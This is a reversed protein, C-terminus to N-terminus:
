PSYPMATAGLRSGWVLPRRNAGGAWVLLGLRGGLLGCPRLSPPRLAVWVAGPGPVPGRGGVATGDSPLAFAALLSLGYMYLIGAHEDELVYNHHTCTKNWPLPM